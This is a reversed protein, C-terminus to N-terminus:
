PSEKPRHWLTLAVADARTQLHVTLRSGDPRAWEGAVVGVTEPGSASRSALGSAAALPRWQQAWLARRVAAAVRPYAGPCLYSAILSAGSALRSSARLVPRAGAPVLTAPDFADRRSAQPALSSLLGTTGPAAGDAPQLQALWHRGEHLGALSLLLGSFQLRDFRPAGAQTLRRAADAPPLPARFRWIRLRAGALDFVQPVTWTWGSLDAAHAPDWSVPTAASPCTGLLLVATMLLPSQVRLRVRNM